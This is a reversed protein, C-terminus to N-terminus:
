EATESYVLSILSTMLLLVGFALLGVVATNATGVGDGIVTRVYPLVMVLGGAGLMPELISDIIHSHPTLLTIGILAIVGGFVASLGMAAQSALYVAYMGAVISTFAVYLREEPVTLIADEIVGM